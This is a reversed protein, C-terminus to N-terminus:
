GFRALPRYLWRDISRTYKSFALRQLELRQVLRWMWPPAVPGFKLELVSASRAGTSRMAIPDDISTWARPDGVLSLESHPQFQLKRDFTVRAYDDLM